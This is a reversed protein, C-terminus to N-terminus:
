RSVTTRVGVLVRRGQLPGFVRATDFRDGFPNGADIIADRQVYDFLNKVAVYVAPGRGLQKTLQLHQETFWPSQSALGDFQPLPTPGQVRGTWDLTVGTRAFRYGVTFVTQVRPSFVLDRRVGDERLYVDQLTVGLNGFLPQRLTSYGAAVSVGRTVASGRLNAYVILNPDVDFDGVIRNSFRTVFADVDITMADEIGNVDLVRNMSLTITASREPQLAEALRVLRAGTLARHDETFLSVVRFGTGANLRLTTHADPAFRLALRPSPIVGHVAHRDVRLGGLVSLKPSLRVEDQALVGPIFRDDRTHQALTSDEYSQHRATAGLLLSHAGLTPTWVAQAFAIRQTAVYAQAGYFSDQHHWSASADLRVPNTLSGTRVTGMVEARSTRISEGYISSSGRDAPTWAAVGGTRDEHYVRALLEVPRHAASGIAWKNLVSIRKIAPLDRFADGNGDVFRTNYAGNMSFLASARGITRGAALALNTEGNTTGFANLTLKPALRADRTVINIVGGMAESGYLTSNPGKTIEVQEILSPDISNLGYVTALASVMPAGDILVATYPGEMGNVRINNTFCVGCDVQQNLGPLFSINDMLTSTVNRQLFAPTVVDVKVPSDSVYTDRLTGTTVVTNLLQASRLLTVHLTATTGIPVDITRIVPGFGVARVRVAHRGAAPLRLRYAGLSDASTRLGLAAVEVTAAAVPRGDSTIRGEVFATVRGAAVPAQAGLPASLRAVCPALAASLMVISTKRLASRVSM